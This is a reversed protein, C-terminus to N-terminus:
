EFRLAAIPRMRAARRAPYGGALVGIVLSVGFAVLVPGVSMVPIPVTSDPGGAGLEPLIMIGAETVALGLGVGVLGGLGTLMVAESLFQRLIATTKAGVAKRIGIERTRETVSVLMINAVGVGGVLLSIAAIGIIFWTLYNIFDMSKKLQETFTTINYDRNAADLIRHQRDLVEIVQNFAADVNDLSTSKVLISDVKGNQNGTLHARAADFPVIVTNDDQGNTELVGQVKFNSHSLRVTKGVLTNPDTDPGYLLNVAQPGLLVARDGAAIQTPTFWRGAVLKRDTLRAYNFQAGVLKARAKQQGATVPVDGGMAESVEGIAPARKPDRLAHVDADTLDRSTGVGSQMKAKSINIQNAFRDTQDQYQQKMGDGMAVMVIVAAVGVVIGITTLLSRLRNNALSHLAALLAERMQAWLAQSADAAPVVPAPLPRPAGRKRGRRAPPEEGPLLTGALVAAAEQRALEKEARRQARRGGTVVGRGLPAGMGHGDTEPGGAREPSAPQANWREAFRRAPAEFVPGAAAEARRWASTAAARCASVVAVFM